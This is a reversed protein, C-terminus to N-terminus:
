EGTEGVRQGTQHVTLLEVLTEDKDKNQLDKLESVSTGMDIAQSSKSRRMKGARNGVAMVVEKSKFGHNVGKPEM